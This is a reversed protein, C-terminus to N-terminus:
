REGLAQAADFREDRVRRRHRVGGYGRIAAGGETNSVAHDPNGGSDLVEVVQALIESLRELEDSPRWGGNLRISSKRRWKSLCRSSRTPVYPAHTYASSKAITNASVPSTTVGKRGPSESSNAVPASAAVPTSFGQTAAPSIITAAKLPLA